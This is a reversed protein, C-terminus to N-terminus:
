PDFRSKTTHAPKSACSASWAATMSSGCVSTATWGPRCITSAQNKWSVAPNLAGPTTVPNPLSLTLQLALLM